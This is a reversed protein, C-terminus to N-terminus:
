GLHSELWWQMNGFKIQMMKCLLSQCSMINETFNRGFSKLFQWHLNLPRHRLLHHWIPSSPMLSPVLCLPVYPRIKIRSYMNAIQNAIVRGFNKLWENCEPELRESFKGAKEEMCKSIRGDPMPPPAMASTWLTKTPDLCPTPTGHRCEVVLVVRHFACCWLNGTCHVNVTYVVIFVVEQFAVGHITHVSCEVCQVSQASQHMAASCLITYKRYFHTFSCIQCCPEM